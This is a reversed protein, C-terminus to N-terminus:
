IDGRLYENFRKAGEGHLIGFKDMVENRIIQDHWELWVPCPEDCSSEKSSDCGKCNPCTPKSPIM